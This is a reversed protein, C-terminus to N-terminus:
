FLFTTRADAISKSLVSRKGILERDM